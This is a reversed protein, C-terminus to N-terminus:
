NQYKICPNLDLAIEKGMKEAMLFANSGLHCYTLSSLTNEYYGHYHFPNQLDFFQYPHTRSGPSPSHLYDHFVFLTGWIATCIKRGHVGYVCPPDSLMIVKFLKKIIWQMLLINLCFKCPKLPVDPACFLNNTDQM